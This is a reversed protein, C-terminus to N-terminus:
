KITCAINTHELGAQVSLTQVEGIWGAVNGVGCGCGEGGGDVGGDVGGGCGGCNGVSCWCSGTASEMRLTFLVRCTCLSTRIFLNLNILYLM